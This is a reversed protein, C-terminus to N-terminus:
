NYNKGIIDIFYPWLQWKLLDDLTVEHKEQVDSYQRKFVEGFVVGIISSEISSLEPIRSQTYYNYYNIVIVISNSSSSIIIFHLCEM